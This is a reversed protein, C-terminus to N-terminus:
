RRGLVHLVFKEEVHEIIPELHPHALLFRHCAMGDRPAEAAWPLWHVALLHGGHRLAAVTRTVTDSLDRDDLYYLIEGLVVLDVPGPPLGAPLAAVRVDVHSLGATATRTRGVAAPVPDFALLHDCRGALERTFMGVGCAPEVAMGYREDPLAALALARKRREYWKAATHWPDTAGEYLEAFRGIPATRTPPQRFVIEVDRGFHALMHADLMPTAGAPGPEVQTAYAAIGAWKRRRQRDTLRYAFTRDAPITPDDPRRRHWTWIPYSWRHTTMPAAALTAEGASRHDPDPDEPWPLLCVNAGALSEALLGALEPRHETLASDPLGLWRVSVDLLGQSRLSERLERRRVRGLEARDRNDLLGFAAEGETAVILEVTTGREHFWQLLGSAGLTADDPHAAVVVAHGHCEEPFPRIEQTALWRQWALEPTGTAATM